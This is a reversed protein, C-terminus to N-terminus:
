TVIWQSLRESTVAICQTDNWIEDCSVPFASRQCSLCCLSRHYCTTESSVRMILHQSSCSVALIPRTVIGLLRVWRGVRTWVTLKCRVSWCYQYPLAATDLGTELRDYETCAPNTICCHICMFFALFLLALILILISCIGDKCTNDKEANKMHM